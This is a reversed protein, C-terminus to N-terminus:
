NSSSKGQENKKEKRFVLYQMRALALICVGVMFIVGFEYGNM